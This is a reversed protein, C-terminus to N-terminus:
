LSDYSFRGENNVLINYMLFNNKDFFVKKPTSCRLKPQLERKNLLEGWCSETEGLLERGAAGTAARAGAGTKGLLERRLERGAARTWCSGRLTVAGKTPQPRGRCPRGRSPGDTAPPGDAVAARGASNPACCSLGAKAQLPEVCVTGFNGNHYWLSCYPVLVSLPM